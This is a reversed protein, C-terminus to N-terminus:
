LQAGCRKVRNEIKREEYTPVVDRWGRRAKEDGKEEREVDPCWMEEEEKWEREEDAPGWMKEDGKEGREECSPM